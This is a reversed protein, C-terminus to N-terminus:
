NPGSSIQETWNIKAQQRYTLSCCVQFALQRRGMKHRGGIHPALKIRTLVCLVHIRLLSSIALVIICGSHLIGHGGKDPRQQGLTPLEYIPSNHFLLPGLWRALGGFACTGSCYMDPGWLRSTAVVERGLHRSRYSVYICIYVHVHM